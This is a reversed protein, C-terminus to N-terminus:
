ALANILKKGHTIHIQIHVHTRQCACLVLNWIVPEGRGEPEGWVGGLQQEESCRTLTPSKTFQLLSQTSRSFPTNSFSHTLRVQGLRSYAATFNVVLSSSSLLSDLPTFHLPSSNLPSSHLSTLYLSTFHLSGHIRLKLSGSLTWCPSWAM